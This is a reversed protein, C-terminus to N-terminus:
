PVQRVGGKDASTVMSAYARLARSVVRDRGRPSFAEAGRAEEERRRAALEDDSLRVEITRAPIDIAIIDGDRVLGILEARSKLTQGKVNKCDEFKIWSGNEM